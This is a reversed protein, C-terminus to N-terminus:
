QATPFGCQNNRRMSYLIGSELPGRFRVLDIVGQRGPRLISTHSLFSGDPTVPAVKLGRKPSENEPCLVRTGGFPRVSEFLQDCRVPLRDIEEDPATAGSTVFLGLQEASQFRIGKSADPLTGFGLRPGKEM